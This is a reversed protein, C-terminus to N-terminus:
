VSVKGFLRVNPSMKEVSFNTCRFLWLFSCSKATEGGGGGGGETQVIDKGVVAPCVCM